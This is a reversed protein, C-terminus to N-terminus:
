DGYLVVADCMERAAVWNKKGQKEWFATYRTAVNREKGDLQGNHHIGLYFGNSRLDRVRGPALMAAPVTVALQDDWERSFRFDGVMLELFKLNAERRYFDLSTVHMFGHVLGIRPKQDPGGDCSKTSFGAGEEKSMHISCMDRGYAQLLKDKLKPNVTAGQPFNDLMLVLDNDIMAQIPDKLWPKTCFSDGDMWIMYRYDALARTQWLKSARFEAQWSYGLNAAVKYGPERCHHFWTINEGDKVNCRKYLFEIEDPSMTALQDQLPPSDRVVTIKTEPAVSRLEEVQWRKWPVTTFVVIDYNVHRNYAATFLCIMQKLKPMDNPWLVKTAMVVGDHRVFPPSPRDMPVVRSWNFPLPRLASANHCYEPHCELGCPESEGAAAAACADSENRQYRSMFFQIRKQCGFAPSVRSLGVADCTQPCGCDFPPKMTEPIGQDAVDLEEQTATDDPVISPALPPAALTETGASDSASRRLTSLLGPQSSSTAGAGGQDQIKALERQYTFIILVVIILLAGFRCRRTLARAGAAVSSASSWEEGTRLARRHIEQLVGRRSPDFKSM